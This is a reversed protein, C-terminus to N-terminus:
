SQQSASLVDATVVGNKNTQYTTTELWTIGKGLVWTYSGIDVEGEYGQETPYIELFLDEDKFAVHIDAEFANNIFITRYKIPLAVESSSSLGRRELEWMLANIFAKKPFDQLDEIVECICEDVIKRGKKFKM